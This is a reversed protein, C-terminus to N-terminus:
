EIRLYQSTLDNVRLSCLSNEVIEGRGGREASEARGLVSVCQARAIGERRMEVFKSERLLALHHSVGPQPQVLFDCLKQVHIEREHLLILLIQV